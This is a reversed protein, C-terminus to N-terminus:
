IIRLAPLNQRMVSKLEDVTPIFVIPFIKHQAEPDIFPSVEYGEFFLEARAQCVRKIGENFAMNERALSGHEGITWEYQQWSLHCVHSLQSIHRSEEATNQIVKDASSSNMLCVRAFVVLLVIATLLTIIRSATM